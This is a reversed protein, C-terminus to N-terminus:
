ELRWLRLALSGAAAVLAVFAAIPRPRWPDGAITGTGTPPPAPQTAKTCTISGNAIEPLPIDVLGVTPIAWVSVTASLPSEGESHCSVDLEAFTQEADLGNASAGQIFISGTDVENRCTNIGPDDPELEGIKCEGVGVKSADYQIRISWSGLGPDVPLSVGTIAVRRTEGITMTASDLELTARREACTIEGEIVELQTQEGPPEIASGFVEIELTLDSTGVEVCRFEFTGLTVEGVLGTQSAGTIRGSNSSFATSCVAGLAATCSEADVISDDWTPDITWAGVPDGSIDAVIDISVTEGVMATGSGLTLTAETGGASVTRAAAALLVALTAVLVLQTGKM